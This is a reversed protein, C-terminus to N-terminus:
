RSMVLLAMAFWLMLIARFIDGGEAYGLYDFSIALARVCCVIQKACMLVVKTAESGVNLLAVRPRRIRDMCQAMAAGMM